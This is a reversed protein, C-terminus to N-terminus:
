VFNNRSNEYDFSTIQSGTSDLIFCDNQTFKSADYATKYIFRLLKTYCVNYSTIRSRKNNIIILFYLLYIFVMIGLGIYINEM